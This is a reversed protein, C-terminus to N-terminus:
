GIVPATPGTEDIDAELRIEGRLIRNITREAKQDHIRLKHRPEGTEPDVDDVGRAEYLWVGALRAIADKVTQSITGTLPVTYRYTRLRDDFWDEAFTIAATIRSANEGEVRNDLNSWKAVNERGFVNEIEGQDIYRGM